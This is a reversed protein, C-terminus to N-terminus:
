RYNTEVIIGKENAGAGASPDSRDSLDAEAREQSECLLRSLHTPIVWLEETLPHKFPYLLGLEALAFAVKDTGGVPESGSDSRAQPDIDALKCTRGEQCFGLQLLFSVAAAGDEDNVDYQLNLFADVITWIQESPPKLLFQFGKRTTRVSRGSLADAEGDISMREGNESPKEVLGLRTLIEELDLSSGRKEGRAGALAGSRAREGIGQDGEVLCLLLSDLCAQSHQRLESPKPLISLVDDPPEAWLTKIGTELIHRVKEAFSKNLRFVRSAGSSKAKGTRKVGADGNSSQPVKTWIGLSLLENVASDHHRRAGESEQAVWNEVVDEGAEGSFAIRLCYQKAIPSLTGLLAQCSTESELVRERTSAPLKVLHSAM